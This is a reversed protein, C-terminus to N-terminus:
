AQYGNETLRRDKEAVKEAQRKQYAKLKELIGADSVALIRLALLAANVAGGIGVCGVPVGPPMQVISYLADQGSLPGAELPVGIVPLPFVAACMGPLAAALGAGAIIVKVGREAAWGTYEILEEPQRHASIIRMEFSVGFEELLKAAKSMVPLDSDSGMVIAIESM